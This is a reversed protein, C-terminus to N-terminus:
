FYRAVSAFPGSWTNTKNGGADILTWFRWGGSFEWAGKLAGGRIEAEGISYKEFSQFGGRFHLSVPKIPYSDAVIGFAFGNRDLLGSWTDWQAYLSASLPNTQLLSFTLGLRATGLTDTGDTLMAGEVYPGIFRWANGRFTFWSGGGVKGLFFPQVEASFAWPKGEKRDLTWEGTDYDKEALAHRLYDGKEYPYSGYSIGINDPYWLDAALDFMARLIITGLNDENDKDDSESKKQTKQEDDDKPAPAQEAEIISDKFDSMDAFSFGSLALFFLAAAAIRKPLIM